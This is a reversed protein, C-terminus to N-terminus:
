LDGENNRKYEYEKCLKIAKKCQQEDFMGIHTMEFSIDMSKSLWKYAKHRSIQGSKWIQDFHFHAEKKLDRLTANAVRGLSKNSGKHVGCWAQCSRCLYIMGYSVGYVEKSDVYETNRECYPCIKGSLIADM